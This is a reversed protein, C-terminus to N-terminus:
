ECRQAAMNGIKRMSNAKNHNSHTDAKANGESGNQKAVTHQLEDTAPIGPSLHLKTMGFLFPLKLLAIRVGDSTSILIQTQGSVTWVDLNENGIGRNGGAVRNQEGFVAAKVQRAM